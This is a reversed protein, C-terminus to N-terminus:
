RASRTKLVLGSSLNSAKREAGIMEQRSTAPTILTCCRSGCGCLPVSISSGVVTPSCTTQRKINDQMSDLAPSLEVSSANEM